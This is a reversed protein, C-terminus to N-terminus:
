FWLYPGTGDPFVGITDDMWFAGDEKEEDTATDYDPAPDDMWFGFRGEISATEARFKVRGDEGQVYNVQMQTPLQAGTQDLLLNSTVRILRSLYIQDRDKVDLDGSLITPTKEYRAL